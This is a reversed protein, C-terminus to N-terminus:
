SPGAGLSQLFKEVDFDNMNPLQQPDQNNFSALLQDFDNPQSTSSAMSTPPVFSQSSPQTISAMLADLDSPNLPAMSGFNNAEPALGDTFPPKSLSSLFADTSATSIPVPAPSPTPMINAPRSSAAQPQSSELMTVDEKMALETTASPTAPGTPMPSRGELKRLDRELVAQAFRQFM